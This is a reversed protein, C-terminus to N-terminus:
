KTFGISTRAKAKALDLIIAQVKQFNTAFAKWQAARRTDSRAKAMSSLSQADEIALQLNETLQKYTDEASLNGGITEYPLRNATM